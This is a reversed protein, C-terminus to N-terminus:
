GKLSFSKDNLQKLRADNGCCDVIVADIGCAAVRRRWEAHDDAPFGDSLAAFEHVLDIQEVHLDVQRIDKRDFQEADRRSLKWM